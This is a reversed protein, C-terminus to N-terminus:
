FLYEYSLTVRHEVLNEEQESSKEFSYDYSLKRLLRRTLAVEHTLNAEYRTTREEPGEVPRNIEYGAGLRLRLNRIFLDEKTFNYRFTTTDTEATSGLTEVPERTVSFTQRATYSIEHEVLAGYLFAIDDEEPNREYSYSANVTVRPNRYIELAESLSVNHTIEWDGEEQDTDEKQLGFSYTLQPRELLRIRWDVTITQTTKWEPEDEPDGVREVLERRYEYNLRADELFQWRAGGGYTTRDEDLDKFQEKDYRRSSFEYNGFFTFPGLELDVDAGYEFTSNPNRTKRSRGGPIFVDEASESTKEWSVYAEAKLHRTETRSALRLRGFPAKSNDLDERVFHKEVAVGSDLSLTTSYSIFAESTLELESLLYYDEMEADAEGPRQREVNTTYVGELRGVAMIDFPGLRLLQAWASPPVAVLLAWVTFILARVSLPLRGLRTRFWIM